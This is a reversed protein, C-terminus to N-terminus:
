NTWSEIRNFSMKVESSFIKEYKYYINYVNFINFALPKMINTFYSLHKVRLM